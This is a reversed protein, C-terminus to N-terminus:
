QCGWPGSKRHSTKTMTAQLAHYLIKEEHLPDENDTRNITNHSLSLRSEDESPIDRTLRRQKRELSVSDQACLAVNYKIVPEENSDTKLLDGYMEEDYTKTSISQDGYVIIDEYEEDSYVDTCIMACEKCISNDGLDMLKSFKRNQENEQAINTNERPKQCDRAFHGMEGCNYCKLKSMDTKGKGKSDKKPKQTEKKDSKDKSDEKKAKRTLVIQQRTDLREVTAVDDKLSNKRGKRKPLALLCQM